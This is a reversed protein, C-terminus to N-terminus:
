RNLRDVVNKMRRWRCVNRLSQKWLTPERLSENTTAQARLSIITEFEPQRGFPDRHMVYDVVVDSRRLTPVDEPNGRSSMGEWLGRLTAISDEWSGLDDLVEEIRRVQEKAEEESTLPRRPAFVRAIPESPLWRDKVEFSFVGIEITELAM